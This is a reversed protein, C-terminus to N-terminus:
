ENDEEKDSRKLSILLSSEGFVVIDEHIKKCTANIEDMMDMILNLEKCFNM